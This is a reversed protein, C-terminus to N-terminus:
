GLTAVPLWHFGFVESISYCIISCGYFSTIGPKGNYHFLETVTVGFRVHHLQIIKKLFGYQIGFNAIPNEWSRRFEFTYFKM